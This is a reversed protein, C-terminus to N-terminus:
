RAATAVPAERLLRAALACGALLALPATFAGPSYGGAGVMLALHGLGNGIGGGIALFLAIVYAPRWGRAIGLGALVFAVLWAVNFALFRTASWPPSGMVAPFARYFGTAYEEALHVCQVLVAAAFIPLVRRPPPWAARSLWLLLSVVLAVVLFVVAPGMAILMLACAIAVFGATVVRERM